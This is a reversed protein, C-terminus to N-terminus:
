SGTRRFIKQGCQLNDSTSLLDGLRVSLQRLYVSPRGSARLNISSKLLDGPWLSLQHFKVHFEKPWTSLQRFSNRSFLFNVFPYSLDEPRLSHQRFIVSSKGPVCCNLPHHYFTKRGSTLNVSTSLLDVPSLFNIFTSSLGGTLM